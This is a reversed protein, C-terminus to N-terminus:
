AHEGARTGRRQEAARRLRALAQLSSRPLPDTYSLAEAADKRSRLMKAAARCAAALLAQRQEVTMVRYPAAELQVAEADEISWSPLTGGV